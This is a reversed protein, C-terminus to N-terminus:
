KQPPQYSEDAISGLLWLGLPMRTTPCFRAGVSHVWLGRLIAVLPYLRVLVELLDSVGVVGTHPDGPGKLSVHPLGM